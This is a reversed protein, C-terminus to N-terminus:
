QSNQRIRTLPNPYKKVYSRVRRNFKDKLNYLYKVRTGKWRPLLLMDDYTAGKQVLTFFEVLEDDDSIAQQIADLRVQYERDENDDDTAEHNLNNALTITPDFLEISPRKGSERQLRHRRFKEVQKGILNEVVTKLQELLSVDERWTWEKSLLKEWAAASYYALYHDGLEKESHAGYMFRGSIRGEIASRLRFNIVKTEDETLVALQERFTM